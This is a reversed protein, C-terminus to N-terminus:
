RDKQSVADETPAPDHQAPAAGSVVLGIVMLARILLDIVINDM